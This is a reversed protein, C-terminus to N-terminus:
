QDVVVKLNQQRNITPLTFYFTAGKESHTNINNNNNQAWMNGGHEEIISKSIFLGLGTGKSSKSAFKSFLRPLIDSDIGTGTDKVSVIVEEKNHNNNNDKNKEVVISISGEKTFKIANNILNSIVQILRTKDAQIIIEEESAKYLLKRRKNNDNDGSGDGSKLEVEEEKVNMVIDDLANLILDNLNLQEKDIRLTNSEIKTVDLIDDALRQLRKANRIIATTVERKKDDGRLEEELLEAFGIIPLIPTRLEHAALNIFETKIRDSEQLQEYLETQRWLTEFISLYSLVTTQSNSYTSWGIAAATDIAEKSDDKLEM